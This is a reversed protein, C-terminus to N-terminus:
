GLVSDANVLWNAGVYFGEFPPEPRVGEMEVTILTGDFVRAQNQGKDEEKRVAVNVAIGYLIPAGMINTKQVTWQGKVSVALITYRDAWGKDGKFFRMGAAALEAANAPANRHDEWQTSAIKISAGKELSAVEAQLNRVDLDNADYRAACDLYKRVTAIQQGFVVDAGQSKRPFELMSDAAGALYKVAQRKWEAANDVAEQLQTQAYSGLTNEAKRADYNKLADAMAPLQTSLTDTATLHDEIEQDKLGPQAKALNIIKEVSTYYAQLADEAERSEADRKRRADAEAENRQRESAEAAARTEEEHQKEAAGADAKRKQEALYGEIDTQLMLTKGLKTEVKEKQTKLTAILNALRPHNPEGALVEAVLRDIDPLKDFVKKHGGTKLDMDTKRLEAEAKKITDDM